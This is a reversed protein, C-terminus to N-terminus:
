PPSTANCSPAATEMTSRARIIELSAVSIAMSCLAAGIRSSSPLTRPTIRTRVDAPDLNFSRDVEALVPIARAYIISSLSAIFTYGPVAVSRSQLGALQFTCILAIVFALVVTAVGLLHGWRNTRRGGILLVAAGLLPLAILLWSWALLGTAPVTDPM